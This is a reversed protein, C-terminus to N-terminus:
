RYYNVGILKRSEFPIEPILIILINLNTLIQKYKTGNSMDIKQKYKLKFLTPLIFTCSM